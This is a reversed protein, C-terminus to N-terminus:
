YREITGVDIHTVDFTLSDTDMDDVNGAIEIDLYKEVDRRTDYEDANNDVTFTLRVTVTVTKRTNPYCVDCDDDDCTYSDDGCMPMREYEPLGFETLFDNFGRECIYEDDCLEIGRDRIDDMIDALAFATWPTGYAYLQKIAIREVRESAHDAIHAIMRSRISLWMVSPHATDPTAVPGAVTRALYTALDSQDREANWRRNSAIARSDELSIM